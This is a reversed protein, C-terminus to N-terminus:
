QFPNGGGPVGTTVWTDAFETVVPVDAGDGAMTVRVTYDANVEAFTGGTLDTEITPTSAGTILDETRTAKPVGAVLWELKTIKYIGSLGSHTILSSLMQKGVDITITGSEVTGITTNRTGSNFLTTVEAASIARDYIRVEDIDGSYRLSSGFAGARGISTGFPTGGMNVTQAIPSLPDEVGNRYFRINAGDVTACVHTKVGAPFNTANWGAFNVNQFSSGNSVGVEIGASVRGFLGWGTNSAGSSSLSFVIGENGFSDPDIWCSISWNAPKGLGTGLEIRQNLSGVYHGGNGFKGAGSTFTTGQVTGPNNGTEDTGDSEHRYFGQLNADRDAGPFSLQVQNAAHTFEDTDTATGLKTGNDFDTSLGPNGTTTIVHDAM